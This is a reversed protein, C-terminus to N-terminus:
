KSLMVVLNVKAKFHLSTYGLTQKVHRDPPKLTVAFKVRQSCFKRNDKKWDQKTM